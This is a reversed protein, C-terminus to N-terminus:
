SSYEPTSTSVFLTTNGLNAHMYTSYGKLYRFNSHDAFGKKELLPGPPKLMMM